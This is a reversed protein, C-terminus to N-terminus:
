NEDISLETDQTVTQNNSNCLYIYKVNDYTSLKKIKSISLNIEINPSYTSIYLIDSEDINLKQSINETYNNNVEKYVKKSEKRKTTLLLQQSDRNLSEKGKSSMLPLTGNNILKNVSDEFNNSIETGTNDELWVSVVLKENIDATTELKKILAPEMKEYNTKNETAYYTPAITFLLIFVTLIISTIKTIKKKM